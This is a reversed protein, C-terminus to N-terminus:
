RQGWGRWRAARTIVPLTMTWEDPWRVPPGPRYPEDPPWWPRPPLLDAWRQQGDRRVTDGDYVRGHPDRGTDPHAWRRWPWWLRM